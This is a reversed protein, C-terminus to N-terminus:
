ELNEISDWYDRMIASYACAVEPNKNLYKDRQEKAEQYIIDLQNVEESVDVYQGSRKAKNIRASIVNTENMLSKIDDVSYEVEEEKSEQKEQNPQEQTEKEDKYWDTNPHEKFLIEKARNFYEIDIIEGNYIDRIEIALKYCESDTQNSEELYDIYRLLQGYNSDLWIMISDENDDEDKTMSDLIDCLEQEKNMYSYYGEKDRYNYNERYGGIFSKTDCYYYGKTKAIIEEDSIVSSSLYNGNETDDIVEQEEIVEEQIQQEEVQNNVEEKECGVLMGISLVSSLILMGIRKNLM